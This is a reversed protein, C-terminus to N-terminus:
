SLRVQDPFRYIRVSGRITAMAWTGTNHDFRAYGDQIVYYIITGSDEDALYIPHEFFRGDLTVETMGPSPVYDEHAPDCCIRM